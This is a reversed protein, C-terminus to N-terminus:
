GPAPARVFPRGPRERASAWRPRSGPHRCGGRAPVSGAVPTSTARHPAARAAAATAVPPADHTDSAGDDRRTSGSCSAGRLGTLVAAVGARVAAGAREPTFTAPRIRRRHRPGGATPPVPGTPPRSTRPRSPSSPVWSSSVAPRPPEGDRHRAPRRARRGCQHHPRSQPGDRARGRRDHRRRRARCAPRRADRRGLGAGRRRADRHPADDGVTLLVVRYGAPASVGSWSGPPPSHTSEPAPATAPAFGPRPVGGGRSRPADGVMGRRERLGSLVAAM